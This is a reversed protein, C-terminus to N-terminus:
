KSLDYNDQQASWERIHKFDVELTYKVNYKMNDAQKIYYKVISPNEEEM